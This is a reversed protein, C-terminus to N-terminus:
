TLENKNTPSIQIFQAALVSDTLNTSSELLPEPPPAENYEPKLIFSGSSDNEIAPISNYSDTPDIPPTVIEATSQEAEIHGNTLNSLSHFQYKSLDKTFHTQLIPIILPVSQSRLPEQFAPSEDEICLCEIQNQEVLLQPLKKRNYEGYFSRDNGALIEIGQDSWFANRSRQQDSNISM